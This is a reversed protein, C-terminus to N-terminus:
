PVGTTRAASRSLRAMSCMTVTIPILALPELEVRFAVSLAYFADRAIQQRDASLLSADSLLNESDNNIVDTAALVEGRARALRDRPGALEGARARQQAEPLLLIEATLREEDETAAALHETADRYQLRAMEPQPGCEALTEQLHVRHCPKAKTERFQADTM